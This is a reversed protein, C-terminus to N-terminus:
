PIDVANTIVCTANRQLYLRPHTVGNTVFQLQGGGITIAATYTAGGLFDLRNLLFPAAIDQVPQMRANGDFKLYTDSASAPAGDPNWNEASSWNSDLASGGDWLYTQASGQSLTLLLVGM